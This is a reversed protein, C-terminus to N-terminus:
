EAVYKNHTLHLLMAVTHKCHSSCNALHKIRPLCFQSFQSTGHFQKYRLLSMGSLKGQPQGAQSLASRHSLCVESHGELERQPAGGGPRTHVGGGLVCICVRESDRYEKVKGPLHKVEAELGRGRGISAARHLTVLVTFVSSGEQETKYLM